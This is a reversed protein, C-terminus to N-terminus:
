EFGLKKLERDTLPAFADRTYSIQGKWAGPKRKGHNDAIAVLRVVPKSGRCIVVEEGACARKVLESFRANAQQLSCNMPPYWTYRNALASGEVTRPIPLTPIGEAVSPAPEEVANDDAERV